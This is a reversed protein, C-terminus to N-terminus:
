PQLRIPDHKCIIFPNPATHTYIKIYDYDTYPFITAPTVDEGFFNVRPGAAKLFKKTVDRDKILVKHIPMPFTIGRKVPPWACNMDRTFYNYKKNNYYYKVCLICSRVSIPRSDALTRNSFLRSVDVTHGTPEYSWYLSEYKWEPEFHAEDEHEDMPTHVYDLTVKDISFNKVRTWRRFFEVCTVILKFFFRLLM